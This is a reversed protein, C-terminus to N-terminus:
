GRRREMQVQMQVQMLVQMQVQMQMQMLMQMHMQMQVVGAVNVEGACGGSVESWRVGVGSGSWTSNPPMDLSEARRM